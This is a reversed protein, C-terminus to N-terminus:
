KLDTALRDSFLWLSWAFLSSESGVLAHSYSFHNDFLSSQKKFFAYVMGMVRLISLSWYGAFIKYVLYFSCTYNSEYGLDTRDYRKM